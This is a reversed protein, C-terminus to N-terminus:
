TIAINKRRSRRSYKKRIAMLRKGMMDPEKNYKEQLKFRILRMMEVADFDKTKKM